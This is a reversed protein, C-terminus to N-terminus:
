LCLEVFFLIFLKGIDGVCFVFILLDDKYMVFGEDFCWEFDNSDCNCFLLKNICIGIDGCVCNGSGLKVGFFYIM